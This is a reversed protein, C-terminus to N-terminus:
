QSRAKLVKSVIKQEEVLFARVIRERVAQGSLCGGYIRSVTKLRKTMRSLARPRAPTIGRLVKGTDGCRPVKAQKKKYLFRLRGGPCKSVRTQNSKTNYCLRRRYTLRKSQM